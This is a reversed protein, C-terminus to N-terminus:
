NKGSNKTKLRSWTNQFFSLLRMRDRRQRYTQSDGRILKQIGSGIMIFRPMFTMGGLGMEVASKM